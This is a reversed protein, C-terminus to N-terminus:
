LLSIWLASLGTLLSDVDNTILPIHNSGCIIKIHTFAKLHVGLIKSSQQM